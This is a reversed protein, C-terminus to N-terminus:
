VCRRFRAGRTLVVVFKHGFKPALQVRRQRVIRGGHARNQNGSHRLKEVRLSFLGLHVRLKRRELLFMLRELLFPVLNNVGAFGPETLGACGSVCDWLRLFHVVSGRCSVGEVGNRLLHHLFPFALCGTGSDSRNEPIPVSGIGTERGCTTSAIPVFTRTALGQCLDTWGRVANLTPWSQSRRLVASM